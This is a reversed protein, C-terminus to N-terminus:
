QVIDSVNGSELINRQMYTNNYLHRAQEMVNIISCERVFFSTFSTNAQVINTDTTVPKRDLIQARSIETGTVAKYIIQIARACSNEWYTEQSEDTIYIIDESTATLHQIKRKYVLNVMEVILLTNGKKAARGEDNGSYDVDTTYCQGLWVVNSNDSTGLLDPLSFSIYMSTGDPFTTLSDINIGGKDSNNKPISIYFRYTVPNKIAVNVVNTTSSDIIFSHAENKWLVNTMTINIDQNNQTNCFKMNYLGNGIADIRINKTRTYLNVNSKTMIKKLEKNYLQRTQRDEIMIYEKALICPGDNFIQNTTPINFMSALKSILELVQVSLIKEKSSQMFFNNASKDTNSYSFWPGVRPVIYASVFEGNVGSPSHYNLVENKDKDCHIYSFKVPNIHKLLRVPNDPNYSTKKVTEEETSNGGNIIGYIEKKFGASLLKKIYLTVSSTNGIIVVPYGLILEKEIKTQASM